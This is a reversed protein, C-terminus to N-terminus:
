DCFENPVASYGEGKSKIDQPGPDPVLTGDTENVFHAVVDWEYQHLEHNYPASPIVFRLAGSTMGAQIATETFAGTGITSMALQSDLYIPADVTLALTEPHCKSNNVLNYVTLTTTRDEHFNGVEWLYTVVLNPPLFPHTGTWTFSAKEGVDETYGFGTVTAMLLGARCLLWKM